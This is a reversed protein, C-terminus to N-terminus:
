ILKKKKDILGNNNNLGTERSNDRRTELSLHSLDDRLDVSINNITSLIDTKQAKITINSSSGM